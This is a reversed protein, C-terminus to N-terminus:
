KIITHSINKGAKGHRGHKSALPVLTIKLACGVAKAYKRLTALSPRSYTINELRSINTKQTHMKEAVQEQTLGAAKRAKLLQRNLAFEDQLADYAAKIKPNKKFAERKVSQYSLRTM